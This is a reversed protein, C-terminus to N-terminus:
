GAAVDLVRRTQEIYGSGFVNVHVLLYYLQYIPRREDAGDLLPWEASYADHFAAPFGGFLAAMALDVERHGYYSSPDILAGGHQTFHVNGNWLDGHLLSPGDSAAPGLRDGMMDFLREFQALMRTDLRSQALRLQPKLRQEAWFAPWDSMWENAQPLPGISNASDWGYQGAQGASRHLRALSRGLEAWAQTTAHAPELWELALWMPTVGLVLPVRVTGTREMRRLAAAEQVLMDGPGGEPATKLFLRSGDTCTVRYAPSICGGGVANTDRIRAGTVREVDDRVLRDLSM